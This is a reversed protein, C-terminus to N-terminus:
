ERFVLKLVEKAISEIPLIAKAYGAEIVAKPMGFVVSTEEDQAIVYGGSEFIRKIGEKGDSGMGTLIIAIARDEYIDAVSGMLVDVSPRYIFKGDEVLEVFVQKGIRKLGMHSDGPALYAVGPQIPERNEAEKVKIECTSDLRESFSKTFVKPMHQAIVVPIPFDKPLESLIMQLAQPGGTSAGISVIEYSGRKRFSKLAEMNLPSKLSARLRRIVFAFRNRAVSKVKELLENEKSHISISVNSFDKAIFDVAGLELAKLTTEAGEKTLASFMIVPTPNSEMIRKLTELGDLKPMEVDLTIVDPKLKEVMELAELGDRAQGVVKISGDSELMRTIAKRMFSSDDVVLVRIVM